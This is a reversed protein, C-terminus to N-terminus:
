KKKPKQKESQPGRDNIWKSNDGGDAAPDFAKAVTITCLPGNPIVIQSETKANWFETRCSIVVSKKKGTATFGRENNMASMSPLANFLSQAENGKFSIMTGIDAERFTLEDVNIYPMGGDNALTQVSTLFILALLISRM